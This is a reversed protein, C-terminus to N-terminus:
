CFMIFIVFKINGITVNNNSNSNNKSNNNYYYNNNDNNNNNYYLKTKSFNSFLQRYM